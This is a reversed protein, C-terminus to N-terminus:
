YSAKSESATDTSTVEEATDTVSDDSGTVYIGFREDQEWTYLDTVKTQHIMKEVHDCVQKWRDKGIEAFAKETMKIADNTIIILLVIFIDAKVVCSGM